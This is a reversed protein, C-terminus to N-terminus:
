NKSKFMRAWWATFSAVCGVFPGLNKIKSNLARKEAMLDSHMAVLAEIRGLEGKTLSALERWKMHDVCSPGAALDHLAEYLEHVAADCDKDRKLHTTSYLSHCLNKDLFGSAFASLLGPEVRLGLAGGIRHLEERPNEMLREYEVVIPRSGAAATHEIVAANYRLWLWLAHTRMLGDRRVLSEAVSLPNRLCFVHSVAADATEFVANWFPLLVCFRPDKIALAGTGTQRERVLAVARPFFISDALRKFTDPAFSRLDDWRHGITKLIEDNLRYFDMDEWYGKPNFRTAPMLDSGLEVGLTELGKTLASTGSRHMGLVVIIRRKTM